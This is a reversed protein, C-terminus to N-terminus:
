SSICGLKNMKYEVPSMYDLFSHMRKRNYFLEIYRFLDNDVELTDNYYRRYICEIKLSAFFSEICSNDYPCGGKSMSQIIKNERLINKVGQSAYQSGRDSHLICGKSDPNKAIANTIAEKVLETDIHKSTAYSIIERNYLDMVCALYYWGLRTKIYTIDSVWVQNPKETKFNQNLLNDEYRGQSNKKSGPKYKQKRISYLGSERMIRRVKWESIEIGKKILEKRIKTSGYIEKYEYFIERVTNVLWVEREKRDKRRAEQDRWRYFGREKVKLVKCMKRVSHESTLLSIAEYKM